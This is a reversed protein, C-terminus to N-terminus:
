GNTNQKTAKLWGGLMKGVKQLQEELHVYKKTDVAQTDKALRILMKLLDLKISAKELLLLKQTAKYSAAGLFLEIIELTVADLKLGLSYRHQKPFQLVCSYLTKYFDYM